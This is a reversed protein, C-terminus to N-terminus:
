LDLLAGGGVGQATAPGGGGLSRSLGVDAHARVLGDDDASQHLFDVGLALALVPAKRKSAFMPYTSFPYADDHVDIFAPRLSLVCLAVGLALSCWDMVGM